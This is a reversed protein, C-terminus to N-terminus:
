GTYDEILSNLDSKGSIVIGKELLKQDAKPLTKTYVDIVDILYNNEFIGIKGEYSKVIYIDETDVTESNDVEETTEVYIPVYVIQTDPVFTEGLKDTVEVEINDSDFNLNTVFIVFVFLMTILYLCLVAMSKRDNKM